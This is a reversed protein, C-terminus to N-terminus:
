VCYWPAHGKCGLERNTALGVDVAQFFCWKGLRERHAAGVLDKLARGLRKAVLNRQGKQAGGIRM